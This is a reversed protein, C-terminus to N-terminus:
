INSFNEFFTMFRLTNPFHKRIKDLTLDKEFTEILPIESALEGLSPRVETSSIQLCSHYSSLTNEIVYYQFSLKIAAQSCNHILKLTAAFDNENILIKM